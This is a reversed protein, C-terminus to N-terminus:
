TVKLQKSISFEKLLNNQGCKSKDELHEQKKVYYEQLYDWRLQLIGMKLYKQVADKYYM